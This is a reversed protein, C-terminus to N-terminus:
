DCRVACIRRLILFSCSSAEGTDSMPIPRPLLSLSAPWLSVCISMGLVVSALRATRPYLVGVGGAIQAAMLCGGIITSFPLSWLHQLSQWTDADHWMLAIAGDASGIGWLGGARLVGNEYQSFLLDILSSPIFTAGSVASRVRLSANEDQACNNESHTCLSRPSRRNWSARWASDEGQEIAPGSTTMRCVGSQM